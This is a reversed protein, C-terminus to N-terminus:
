LSAPLRPLLNSVPKCALFIHRFILFLNFLIDLLPLIALWFIILLNVLPLFLNSVPQLSWLQLFFFGPFLPPLTRPLLLPLKCPSSAQKMGFGKRQDKRQRPSDRLDLLYLLKLHKCIPVHLATRTSFFQRGCIQSAVFARVSIRTVIAPVLHM